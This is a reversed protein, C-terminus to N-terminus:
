LALVSRNELYKLVRVVETLVIAPEKSDVGVLAALLEIKKRAKADRLLEELNVDDDSEVTDSDRLSAESPMFSIAKANQLENGEMAM